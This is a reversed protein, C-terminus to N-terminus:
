ENTGENEEPILILYTPLGKIQFYDVAAKTDADGFNEAQFKVKVFDEMAVQVDPDPFTSKEMQLCNKCWTAWFDIFVPKGEALGRELAPQLSILWDGHEISQQHAQTLEKTAEGELRASNRMLNYGLNAYYLAMAIIFVGFVWRVVKMWKGPKPLSAIGAGAFPWPLAMGIGLLFPLLVGYPKGSAVLDASRIVVAIVVPAVCAGALLAALCGMFFVAIYHAAGSHEKKQTAKAGPRFKTLDITVLEFMALGLVIFVAAIAFNFWPSANLAGFQTGALAALLGLAGYAIAIGLGYLLGLAFGRGRHGAKNGAGIIALNIPIMPLVCPTLNLLLGGILIISITAWIGASTLRETLSPELEGSVAGDLFVMFDDPPLYGEKRGAERFQAALTQWDSTEIPTTTPNTELPFTKKSSGSFIDPSPVVTGKALGFKKTEGPALQSNVKSPPYCVTPNCGQYSVIIEAQDGLKSVKYQFSVEHDYVAVDENTFPDAKMKSKPIEVPELKLDGGVEIKLAHKYLFHKELMTFTVALDASGADVEGLAVTVGFPDENGFQAQAVSAFALFSLLVIALMRHRM